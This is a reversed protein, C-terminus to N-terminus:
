PQSCAMKKNGKKKKKLQHNVDFMISTDRPKKKEEKNERNHKPTAAIKKFITKLNHFFYLKLVNKHM